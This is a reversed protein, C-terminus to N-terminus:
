IKTIAENFAKGRENFNEFMDFSPFGPSFLINDGIHSKQYALLAAEELSGVLYTETYDGLIRNLREKSSGTLLLCKVKRKIYPIVAHFDEDTEQGGCILIIPPTLAEIARITSMLNTSKADNYITIKDKAYVKQLRFDPAKLKSFDLTSQVDLFLKPELCVIIQLAAMLNDLNHMGILGYDKINCTLQKNAAGTHIHLINKETFHILRLTPNDKIHQTLPRKSFYAMRGKNAAKFKPLSQDLANYVLFGDEDLSRALNIKADLYNEFSGGHDKIHHASVNLVCGVKPHVGKFWQLMFSSVEVIATPPLDKPHDLLYQCLTVENNGAFFAPIGMQKLLEQTITGTTTKGNTGTIAVVRGTYHRLGLEVESIVKEESKELLKLIREDRVGPSVVITDYPSLDKISHRGLESGVYKGKIQALADKLQSEVKIDSVSVHAGHHHLFKTAAIGSRGLGM